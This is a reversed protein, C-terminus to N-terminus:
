KTRWVRLENDAVLRSTFRKGSRARITGLANSIYSVQCGKSVYDEPILILTSDGVDLLDMAERRSTDPPRKVRDAPNTHHKPPIPIGKDLQLYKSVPTPIKGLCEVCTAPALFGPMSRGCDVCRPTKPSDSM